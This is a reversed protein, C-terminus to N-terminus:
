QNESQEDCIESYMKKCEDCDMSNMEALFCKERSCESESTHERRVITRITSLVERYINKKTQFIAKTNYKDLVNLDMLIDDSSREGEQIMEVIDSLMKKLEKNQRKLEGIEEILSYRQNHENILMQLEECFEDTRTM